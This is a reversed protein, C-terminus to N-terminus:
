LPVEQPTHNRCMTVLRQFPSGDYGFQVALQTTSVPCWKLNDPWGEPQGQYPELSILVFLCKRYTRAKTLWDELDGGHCFVHKDGHFLHHGPYQDAAISTFFDDVYRGSSTSRGAHNFYYVAM